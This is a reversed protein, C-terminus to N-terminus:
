ERKASMGVPDTEVATTTMLSAFFQVAGKGQLLIVNEARRLQEAVRESHFRKVEIHLDSAPLYFDLRAPSEAEHDTIFDIGCARLAQGCLREMPDTEAATLLRAGLRAAIERAAQESRVTAPTSHDQMARRIIKAIFELSVTSDAPKTDYVGGLTQPEVATETM